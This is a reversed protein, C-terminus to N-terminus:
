RVKGCNLGSNRSEGSLGLGSGGTAVIVDPALAALEMADRRLTEANGKGWPYEIQVSRGEIWGLRQLAQLFVALRERMAAEDSIGSIMGIHRVREQAGAALPWAAASGGLLTIFERRNM